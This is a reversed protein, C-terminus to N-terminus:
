LKNCRVARPGNFFGIAWLDWGDLGGLGAVQWVGSARGRGGSGAVRGVVSGALWGVVSGARRGAVSGGGHSVM